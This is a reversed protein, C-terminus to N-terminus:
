LDEKSSSSSSSRSSRPAPPSASKERRAFVKKLTDYAETVEVMKAQDGGKDPHHVMALKRYAKKVEAMTCGSELGLVKYSHTEGDVDLTELLDQFAEDWGKEQVDRYLDWISQILKSFEPSKLVNRLAEKLTIDEGDVHVTADQLANVTAASLLVTITAAVLGAVMMRKFFGTRQGFSEGVRHSRYNWAVITALCTPYFYSCEGSTAVQGLAVCASSAFVKWFATQERGVSGVAWVGVAIGLAMTFGDLVPLELDFWTWVALGVRAVSGFYSGFFMQALLRSGSTRPMGQQQLLNLRAMFDPGGNADEVYDSLRLFDRFWFVMWPVVLLSFPAVTWTLYAHLDRGLYLHHLGFIGGFWWLIFALPTSAMSILRAGM